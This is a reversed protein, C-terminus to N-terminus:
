LESSFTFNNFTTRIYNLAGNTASVQLSAHQFDNAGFTIAYTTFNDSNTNSGVAVTPTARKPILQINSYAQKAAQVYGSVDLLVINEYYRQCLALETGYPRYDFSTATSGKELQVNGITWTLGATLAGVTFV